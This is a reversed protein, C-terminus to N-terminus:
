STEVSLLPRMFPLIDLYYARGYSELSDNLRRNHTVLGMGIRRGDVEFHRAEGTISGDVTQIDPRFMGLRLSVYLYVIGTGLALLPLIWTALTLLLGAEGASAMAQSANQLMWIGLALFIVAYVGWITGWRQLRTQQRFSLKGNSNDKVESLEFGIRDALQQTTTM